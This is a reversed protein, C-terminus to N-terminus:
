TKVLKPRLQSDILRADMGTAFAPDKPRLMRIVLNGSPKIIPDGGTAILSNGIRNVQVDTTGRREDAVGAGGVIVFRDYGNQITLESARLLVIEEAREKSTFGNGKVSIRYTDDSLKM